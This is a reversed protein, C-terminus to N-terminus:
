RRGRRTVCPVPEDTEGAALSRGLANKYEEARKARSAELYLKRAEAEKDQSFSTAPLFSFFMLTLILIRKM